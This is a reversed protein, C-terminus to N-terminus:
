QDVAGATVVRVKTVIDVARLNRFLRGRSALHRSHTQERHPDPDVPVAHDGDHVIQSEAFGSWALVLAVIWGSIAIRRRV